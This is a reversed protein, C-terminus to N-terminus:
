KLLILSEDDEGKFGLKNREVLEYIDDLMNFPIYTILNDEPFDSLGARLKIAENRTCHVLDCYNSINLTDIYGDLYAKKTNINLSITMSCSSRKENAEFDLLTVEFDKNTHNEFFYKGAFKDLVRATNQTRVPVLQSRNGAIGMEEVLRLAFIERPVKHKKSLLERNLNFITNKVWRISQQYVYAFYSTYDVSQKKSVGALFGEEDYLTMYVSDNYNTNM